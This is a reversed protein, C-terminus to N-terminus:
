QTKAKNMVTRVIFEIREKNFPENAHIIYPTGMADIDESTVIDYMIVYKIAGDLRTKDVVRLHRHMLMRGFVDVGYNQVMKDKLQRMVYRVSSGGLIAVPSDLPIQEIKCNLATAMFHKVPADCADMIARPDQNNLDQCIRRAVARSYEGTVAIYFTKM